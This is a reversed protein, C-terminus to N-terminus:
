RRKHTDIFCQFMWLDLDVVFRTNTIYMLGNRILKSVNLSTKSLRIIHSFVPKEVLSIIMRWDLCMGTYCIPFGIWIIRNSAFKREPRRRLGRVIDDR